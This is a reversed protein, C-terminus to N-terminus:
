PKQRKPESLRKRSRELRKGCAELSQSRMQPYLFDEMAQAAEVLWGSREGTVRDKHMKPEVGARKAIDLLLSVFEDYWELAHRGKKGLKSSLDAHAVLCAHAIRAADQAFSSLLQQAKPLSGVSPDLALFGAVRTSLEIRLDSHFGEEVGSLFKSVESLEKASALLAAGVPVSDLGHQEQSWLGIVAALHWYLEEVATNEFSDGVGLEVIAQRLSSCDRYPTVLAVGTSRLRAM